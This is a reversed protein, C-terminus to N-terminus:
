GMVKEILESYRSQVAPNDVRYRWLFDVADRRAERARGAHRSLADVLM